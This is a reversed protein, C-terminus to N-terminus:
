RMGRLGLGLGVPADFDKMLNNGIGSIQKMILSSSYLDSYICIDKDLICFLHM